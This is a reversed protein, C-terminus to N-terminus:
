KKIFIKAVDLFEKVIEKLEEKTIKDDQVADDLKDFAERLEKVFTKAKGFYVGGVLAIIIGIALVAVEYLDMNIEEEKINKGIYNYM